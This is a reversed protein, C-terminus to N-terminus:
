LFDNAVVGLIYQPAERYNCNSMNRFLLITRFKVGNLIKLNRKCTKKIEQVHKTYLAM